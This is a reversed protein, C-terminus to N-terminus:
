FILAVIQEADRFMGLLFKVSKKLKLVLLVIKENFKSLKKTSNTIKKYM